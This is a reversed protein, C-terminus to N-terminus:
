FSKKVVHNKYLNDGNTIMFDDKSLECRATWLSVLNNTIDYFPNYITNINVSSQYKKIAEEIKEHLYGTILFIENFIKSNIASSLQRNLLTTGDGLDLLSKPTNKTLPWLREGKGAALIFLNM